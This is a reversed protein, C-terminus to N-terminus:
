LFTKIWGVVSVTVSNATFCVALAFLLFFVKDKVFAWKTLFLNREYHALDKLCFLSFVILTMILVSM